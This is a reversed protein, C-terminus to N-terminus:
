PGQPPVFDAAQRRNQEEQIARAATLPILILIGYFAVWAMPVHLGTLAFLSFCAVGWLMAPGLAYVTLKFCTGFGPRASVLLTVLGSVLLVQIGKWLFQWLFVAVAFVPLMFTEAQAIWRKLNAQNVVLTLDKLPYERIEGTSKKISLSTPGLVMMQEASQLHQRPETRTDLVFFPQGELNILYPQEAPSSVRGDQIYIDPVQALVSPMYQQIGRHMAYAAAAGYLFSMALLVLFFHFLSSWVSRRAMAPYSRPSSFSLLFAQLFSPTM